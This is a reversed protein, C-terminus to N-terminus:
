LYLDLINHNLHMLEVIQRLQQGWHNPWNFCNNEKSFHGGTDQENIYQTLWNYWCHYFCAGTWSNLRFLFRREFIWCRRVLKARPRVEQGGSEPGQAGSLTTRTNISCTWSNEKWLPAPVTAMFKTSSSAGRCDIDVECEEIKNYLPM